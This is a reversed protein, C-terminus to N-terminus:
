AVFEAYNVGGRTDAEFRNGSRPHLRMRHQPVVAFITM